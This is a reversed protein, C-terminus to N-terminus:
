LGSQAYEKKRDRDTQQGKSRNIIRKVVTEVIKRTENEVEATILPKVTQQQAKVM